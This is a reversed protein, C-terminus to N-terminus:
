RWPGRREKRKVADLYPRMEDSYHKPSRYYHSRWRQGYLKGAFRGERQNRSRTSEYLRMDRTLEAHMSLASDIQAQRLLPHVDAPPPENQLKEAEAAFKGAWEKTIAYQTANQIM